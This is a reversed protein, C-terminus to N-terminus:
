EELLINWISERIFIKDASYCLFSRKYLDPYHHVKKSDVFAVFFYWKCIQKRSFM